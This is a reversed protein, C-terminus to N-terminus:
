SKLGKTPFELKENARLMEEWSVEARRYAATRGLITTLNSRVSPAVTPNSYEGEVIAKHFTAINAVAGDTYLHALKGGKYSKEGRILVTGWYHTEATGKPGFVWCGIDEIGTGYQKSSFSLLVDDPFLFVCAFADNCLIDPATAPDQRGRRNCVGYAKIPDRDLFWTAVDLAHINQETIIDGSLIRDRGWRLLRKEPDSPDFETGWTGGTYYVAEASVIPGIDGAHVRRVCERYLEDARTQFDVLVCRKKETARKGAELFRLCGPVDVAIPKAVFAHCGADVADWTQDPHFYPPSEIVVADPKLDLLRKYGSLGTFRNAEKVQFKDGLNNVRQPFYDAAALIHYGGHKQFLDAIWVGRGGCGIIGISVKQNASYGRALEPSVATLALAAGTGAVFRRRTVRSSSASNNSAPSQRQSM